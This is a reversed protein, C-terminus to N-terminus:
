KVAIVLIKEAGLFIDSVYTGDHGLFKMIKLLQGPLLTSIGTDNISPQYDYLATVLQGNLEPTLSTAAPRSAFLGHM